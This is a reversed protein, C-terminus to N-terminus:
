PPDKPCHTELKIVIFLHLCWVRGTNNIKMGPCDVTLM